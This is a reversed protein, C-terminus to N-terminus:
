RREVGRGTLVMENHSHCYVSGKSGAREYCFLCTGDTRAEPFPDHKQQDRRIAALLREVDATFRAPSRRGAM